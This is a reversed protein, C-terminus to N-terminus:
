VPFEDWTRGELLRGALKSNKGGIQKFFFPIGHALAQDRIDIVWSEEMPRAGPGSEGGVIIWDLGNYDLSPLPGLLPELSVFKVAAGTSKLLEARYAYADSEITVGAWINPAWPLLSSLEALREARKTLVQFTHWHAQGMINFIDLDFEVPVEVHFADSMSCTFIKQPKKVLLPKQLEGPHCTVDFGNKYKKLGMGKLRPAFKSAYCNKCGLSYKTCGTIPNWTGDTWHIQSTFSM